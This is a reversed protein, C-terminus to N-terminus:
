VVATQTTVDPVAEAPAPVGPDRLIFREDIGANKCRKQYWGASVFIFLLMFIQARQRFASGVNGHILAYGCTMSAAFLLLPSTESFLRRAALRVGRLMSPFLIWWAITEPATLIPRLSTMQWPFPGLLITALGIPLFFLAKTPTSIDVDRRFGSGADAMGARFTSVREFSFVETGEEVRSMLGTFTFLGLALGAILVQKYIGTFFRAGRNLILSGLVAFGVFYVMYFRLPQLAFIPLITGLVRGVTFKEKLEIASFLSTIIMLTVLTDKIGVSSWLILSPTFAALMATMQAVKVHFFRRALRYVLAITVVGIVANFYSVNVQFPGVLYCIVGALWYFGMNTQGLLPPVPPGRGAWAAALRLGSAEYGDADEHFLRLEHVTAFVTAVFIRIIFAIILLRFLWRREDPDARGACIRVVVLGAAMFIALPLFIEL